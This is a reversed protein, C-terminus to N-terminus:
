QTQESSRTLLDNRPGTADSGSNATTFMWKSTEEALIADANLTHDLRPDHRLTRLWGNTRHRRRRVVESVVMMKGTDLRVSLRDVTPRSRHGTLGPWSVIATGTRAFSAWYRGIAKSLLRVTPQPRRRFSFGILTM